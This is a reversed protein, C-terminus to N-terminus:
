EFLGAGDLDEFAEMLCRLKPWWYSTSSGEARDHVPVFLWDTVAVRYDTLLEDWCYDHVGNALLGRHYRRLVGEERGGEARQARTWFTACLNALDEAGLHAAPSQWDIFYTEGSTPDNPCLFNAFYADGHTLTVGVRDTLRPELYRAWLRPLYALAQECLNRFHAPFWEGEAQLLGKWDEAHCQILQEFCSRDRYSRDVQAAGTGLYPHEWWYAHLQALADVTQEQDVAAPVNEEPTLQQDRTLPAHHTASVDQLLIHSSGSAEDYEAAYCPVIMPLRAPLSEVLRYFGVERAGARIAWPASLSRKLLLRRPASAPADDSYSLSLHTIRSNFAANPEERISVVAGQPLVGARYLLPTLWAPTIPEDVSGRHAM